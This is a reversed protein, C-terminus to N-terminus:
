LNGDPMKTAFSNLVYVEEIVSEKHEKNNKM